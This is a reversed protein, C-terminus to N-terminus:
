AAACLEGEAPVHALPWACWGCCACGTAICAADTLMHPLCSRMGAPWLQWCLVSCQAAWGAPAPPLAPGAIRQCPLPVHAGAAWSLFCRGLGLEGRPWPIVHTCYSETCSAAWGDSGESVLRCTLLAWFPSPCGWAFEWVQPDACWGGRGFVLGVVALATIFLVSVLSTVAVHWCM